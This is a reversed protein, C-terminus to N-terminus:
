ALSIYAMPVLGYYEASRAPRSVYGTQFPAVIWEGGLREAFGYAQTLAAAFTNHVTINPLKRM